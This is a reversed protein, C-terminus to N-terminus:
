MAPMHDLLSYLTKKHLYRQYYGDILLSFEERFFFKEDRKEEYGDRDIM